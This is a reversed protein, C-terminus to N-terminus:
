SSSFYTFLFSCLYFFSFLGISFSCNIFKKDAGISPPNKSMSRIGKVYRNNYRGLHSGLEHCLALSLFLHLFTTLKGFHGLFSCMNFLLFRSFTAISRSPIWLVVTPLAFQNPHSTHQESSLGVVLCTPPTKCV